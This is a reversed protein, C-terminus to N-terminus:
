ISAKKLHIILNQLYYGRDTNYFMLIVGHDKLLSSLISLAKKENIFQVVSNLMIVDFSKPHFISPLEEYSLKLLLVNNIENKRQYKVAFNLLYENVDIGTVLANTNLKAAAFAWCGPGCGVDLIYTKDIINHKKLVDIYPDIGNVFRSQIYGDLSNAM